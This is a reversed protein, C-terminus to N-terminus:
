MKNKSNDRWAEIKAFIYKYVYGYGYETHKNRSDYWRNSLSTEFSLSNGKQTNKLHVVKNLIHLVINGYWRVSGTQLHSKSIQNNVEFSFNNFRFSDHSYNFYTLVCKCCSRRKQFKNSSLHLSINFRVILVDM